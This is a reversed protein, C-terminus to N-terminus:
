AMGRGRKRRRSYQLTMVASLDCDGGVDDGNVGRSRAQLGVRMVGAVHNHARGQSEDDTSGRRDLQWLYAQLDSGRRNRAAHHGDHRRVGDPPSRRADSQNRAAVGSQDSERRTQRFMSSGGAMRAGNGSLAFASVIRVEEVTHDIQGSHELERHIKWYVDWFRVSRPIQNPGITAVAHMGPPEVAADLSVMLEAGAVALNTVLPHRRPFLEAHGAAALFVRKPRGEPCDLCGYDGDGRSPFSAAPDSDKLLALTAELTENTVGGVALVGEAPTVWHALAFIRGGQVYRLQATGRDDIELVFSPWWTNHALAIWLRRQGPMDSAVFDQIRWPASYSPRSVVADSRPDCEM